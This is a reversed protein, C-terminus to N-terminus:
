YSGHRGEPPRGHYGEITPLMPGFVETFTVSLERFVAGLTQGLELLQARVEESRDFAGLFRGM